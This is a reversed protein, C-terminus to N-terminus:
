KFWRGLRHNFILEAVKLDNIKKSNTLFMAVKLEYVLKEFLEDLTKTEYAKLFPLSIGVASAGM